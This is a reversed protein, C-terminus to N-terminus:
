VRCYDSPLVSGRVTPNDRWAALASRYGLRQALGYLANWQRFETLSTYVNQLKDQWGRLGSKCRVQRM